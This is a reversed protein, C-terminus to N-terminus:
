FGANCFMDPHSFHVSIINFVKAVAQRELREFLNRRILNNIKMMKTIRSSYNSIQESQYYDHLENSVVELLRDTFMLVDGQHQKGAHALCLELLMFNLEMDSPKLDSIADVIINFPEDHHCDLYYALQEKSYNTCWSVDVEFNGIDIGVDKGIMYFNQNLQQNKRENATKVLKDLRGWLIWAVKLIQMRISLPLEQFEDFHSLWRATRLFDQEWFIMSEKLGLVKITSLNSSKENQLDEFKKTMRGLNSNSSFRKRDVNGFIDFAQNILFTVDVITKVKSAKDPECSLIFAPRGLFNAMSKPVKSRQSFSFSGSSDSSESTSTSILDRDHQFKNADMGAELCIRLRCKKCYFKGHKDIKCNGIPCFTEGDVNTRRFFAACARCSLVGFHNGFAPNGCIKCLSKRKSVQM